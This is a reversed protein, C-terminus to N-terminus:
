RVAVVAEFSDRLKSRVQFLVNARFAPADSQGDARPHPVLFRLVLFSLAGDVFKEVGAGVGRGKFGHHGLATRAPREAERPCAGVVVEQVCDDHPLFGYRLGTMRLLASQRQLRFGGEFSVVVIATARFQLIRFALQFFQRCHVIALAQSSQPVGDLEDPVLRFLSVAVKHAPHSCFVKVFGKIPHELHPEATEVGLDFALCLKAPADQGLDHM